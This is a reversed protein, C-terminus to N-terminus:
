KSSKALLDLKKPDNIKFQTRELEIIGQDSFRYLIKCVMERTTGIRAAMDDLTLDRSIYGNLTDRSQDLLLNALRGSLPLFVLGELIESVRDMKKALMSFLSWAFQPQSFITSAILPKDWILIESDVAARIAVPNPRDAEFLAIGWFFEGPLFSEIVFSRGQASEKIAEFEGSHIYFLYPWVDGRHTVYETKIFKRTIAARIFQHIDKEPLNSFVLHKFLHDKNEM